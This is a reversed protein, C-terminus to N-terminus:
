RSRPRRATRRRPPRRRPRSRAASAAGAGDDPLNIAERGDPTEAVITEAVPDPKVEQKPQPMAADGRHGACRRRSRDRGAQGAGEEAEDDPKPAEARRRRRRQLPRSRSRSPSRRRRSTPTSTTTASRRRTPCSTRAQETPMPAPKEKMAAKKDGQQIQTIRSPVIDVPLAEVDAVELARPASLSFLGFGILAAHLVVSTALGAKM